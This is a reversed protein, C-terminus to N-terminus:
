KEGVSAGSENKLGGIAVVGNNKYSVALVKNDVKWIATCDESVDPKGWVERLQTIRYGPLINNVESESMEVIASLAPLNDNSKRLSYGVRWALIAVALAAIFVLLIKYKKKMKRMDDGKKRRNRSEATGMITM